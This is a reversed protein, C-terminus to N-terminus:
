TLLGRSRALRKWLLIALPVSVNLWFATFMLTFFASDPLIKHQVYAIDMIVFALEARGVMGLGVLLSQAWHYRGIFYAALGASLLQVVFVGLLLTLTQPMVSVLTPWDFQIRAGLEVFFVPGIWSFAVSDVIRRTDRYSSGQRKGAWHFYEEKVVLGALYAGVAPHLGLFHALLGIGLAFLLVTLTAHAGNEFSLLHGLGFRNLLPLEAAWGRLPHPLVVLSVLAVIAFFLLAKGLIMAMAVPELSGEGTALPILVALAALSTFSDVVAATMIGQAAPQNLLGEGKLAVLSLSVATATMTLGCMIAVPVSQWFYFSIAYAALFPGLAGFLAISWAKRLSGLFNGASEGFGLAFMILIIGLESFGRIFPDEEAPLVGLNALLSGLALFYLVPTLQTRNAAVIAVYVCSWIIALHVLSDM